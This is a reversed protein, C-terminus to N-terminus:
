LVNKCFKYVGILFLADWLILLIIFTLTQKFGRSFNKLRKLRGEVLNHLACSHHQWDYKTYFKVKCLHCMYVGNPIIAGYRNSIDNRDFIKQEVDLIIKSSDRMSMGDPINM